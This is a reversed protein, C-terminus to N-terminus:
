SGEVEAEAVLEGVMAAAVTGVGAAVVMDAALAESGEEGVSDVAMAARAEGLATVVTGEALTAAGWEVTAAM